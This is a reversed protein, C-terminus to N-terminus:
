NSELLLQWLGAEPLDTLTWVENSKLSELEKETARRWEGAEPTSLAEEPTTPEELVRSALCVVFWDPERRTRESHRPGPAPDEEGNSNGEGEQTEETLDRGCDIEM